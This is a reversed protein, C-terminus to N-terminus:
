TINTNFLYKPLLELVPKLEYGKGSLSDSLTKMEIPNLYNIENINSLIESWEVKFRAGVLTIIEGVITSIPLENGFGTNPYFGQPDNIFKWGEQPLFTWTKIVGKAVSNGTKKVEIIHFNNRKGTYMLNSTSSFSGSSFIPIKFGRTTTYNRLLPDHKHGHIILDYKFEGLIDVLDEGNSIFDNNGLQLRSHQIPHHHCLALKIKDTKNNELYNQIGEIQNLDIKGDKASQVNQHFHCSNIILIQYEEKEIFVYGESWFKDRSAKDSLPFDRGISKATDFSYNSDQNRSDVDHNGITAIIENSKLAIKVELAFGWGDLFGQIDHSDTFDGPCITLDSNLGDSKIIDKIGEVPHLKAPRRLKDTLLYTRNDRSNSKSPHCHMDSIVAIKLKNLKMNCLIAYLLSMIFVM